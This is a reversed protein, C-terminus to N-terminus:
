IKTDVSDAWVNYVPYIANLRSENDRFFKTFMKIYSHDESCQLITSLIKKSKPTVRFIKLYRGTEVCGTVHVPAGQQLNEFWEVVQDGYAVINIYDYERDHMAPIPQSDDDYFRKVRIKFHLSYSYNKEVQRIDPPMYVLGQLEVRNVYPDKGKEIKALCRETADGFANSWIEAMPLTQEVREEKSMRFLEFIQRKEFEGIGALRGIDNVLDVFEEDYSNVNIIEYTQFRGHGAIFKHKERDFNEKFPKIIKDGTTFMPIKSVMPVGLKDERVTSPFDLMIRLTPFSTGDEKIMWYNPNRTSNKATTNKSKAPRSIKGVFHMENLYDMDEYYEFLDELQRRSLSKDNM